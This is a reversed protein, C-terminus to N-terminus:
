AEVSFDTAYLRFAEYKTNIYLHQFGEFKVLPRASRKGVMDVVRDFLEYPRVRGVVKGALVDDARILWLSKAVVIDIIINSETITENENFEGDNYYVRIFAEDTTTVEVDFPYPFIKTMLLGRMQAETVDTRYPYPNDVDDNLLLQAIAKNKTLTEMIDIVRKSMQNVSM